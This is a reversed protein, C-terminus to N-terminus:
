TVSPSGENSADVVHNLAVRRIGATLPGPGTAAASSHQSNEAENESTMATPTM